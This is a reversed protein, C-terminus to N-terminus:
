RGARRLQNPDLTREDRIVLNLTHHVEDRLLGLRTVFHFDVLLKGFGRGGVPVLAANILVLLDDLLADFDDPGFLLRADRQQLPAQAEAVAARGADHVFKLVAADDAGAIACFPPFDQNIEVDRRLRFGRGLEFIESRARFM